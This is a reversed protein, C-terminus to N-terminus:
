PRAAAGTVRLAYLSPVLVGGDDAVLLLSREGSRLEPGLAMGELNVPLPGAEWLLRKSAPEFSAGELSDLGSVDTAESLDARFIRAVFGADGLSRELVLLEGPALLELDVVGSRHLAGDSGGPVPETRYAWQGGPSGDADLRVLRVLTGRARTSKPGDGPLAEENATWLESGPGRALSELSLNPRATGLVAPLEVGRLRAGDAVGFEAIRPGTEDVVWVSQHGEGRWVVGELDRTGALRIWRGAVARRLRGSGPDIEIDLPVLLGRRDSVAWFRTGSAWTLGSLGSARAGTTEIPFVGQGPDAIELAPLPHALALLGLLSVLAAGARM